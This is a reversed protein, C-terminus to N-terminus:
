DWYWQGVEGDTNSSMRTSTLEGNSETKLKEKSVVESVDFSIGGSVGVLTHRLSKGQVRQNIIRHNMVSQVQTPTGELKPHYGFPDDSGFFTMNWNAQEALREQRIIASILAMDFVNKLQQYIPYKDSIEAYHDTFDDAFAKTPGKSTGTHIRQGLDDIMENESLVKVGTGRFEFALREEDALVDDYNLTFWWRVVDMPPLTGDANPEVRSLFSPIEPISEELGMGILKMRYDAEVLIRGAHTQPDIGFVEIDQMGLKERLKNRWAKGSLKTTALYEKTDALNQQRPTIACGFKGNKDYANRLCVVLDDLQLVPMGTEVNVSRGEENLKWPGAPGAIVIDGTEPYAILYKIEYLGALNLMEDPLEKGQAAILQAARELKVLSIKRLGSESVTNWVADSVRAEERLRQLAKSGPKIRQLTGTADVYVGAPYAQISGDGNTDDWDDPAITSKILDILNDFDAETIGGQNPNQGGNNNLMNGLTDARTVDNGIQGASQYAGDFAGADFQSQAIQAHWQDAQDGGLQNALDIATGFEGSNLHDQIQGDLNQATAFSGTISVMFGILLLRWPCRARHGYCSLRKM